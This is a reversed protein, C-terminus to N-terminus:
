LQSRISYLVKIDTGYAYVKICMHELVVQKEKQLGSVVVPNVNLMITQNLPHM